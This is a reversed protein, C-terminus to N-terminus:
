SNAAEGGHCMAQEQSTRAQSQCAHPSAPTAHVLDDRRGCPAAICAYELISLMIVISPDIPSPPPCTRLVASANDIAVPRGNRTSFM